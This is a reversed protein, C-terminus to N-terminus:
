GRANAPTVAKIPNLTNLHAWLAELEPIAKKDKPRFETIGKGAGLSTQYSRRHVLFAPSVAIGLRQAQMEAVKFEEEGRKDPLQNVICVAQELKGVRTILDVTDKLAETAFFTPQTPTIILDAARIAAVSGADTKGATDVMALTIGLTKAADLIKDLNDAVAALVAPAESSEGRLRHWQKASEQPDLDILLVREGCQVAYASLHALITTKGSGGKQSVASWTRM